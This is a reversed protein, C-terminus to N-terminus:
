SVSAGNHSPDPPGATVRTVSLADKAALFVGILVLLLAARTWVGAILLRKFFTFDEHLYVIDYFWRFVGVYVMLDVIAYLAWWVLRVNLLVFFPLIWLTYQPSHVKSFALFVALLSACAAVFPYVDDKRGRAWSMTLVLAFSVLMLATTVLNFDDASWSPWGFQWFTDFNPLRQRHFEYTAWWGPLNVLAFPLNVAAFTGLGIAVARMGSWFDRRAVRDFLLPGLFLLPYLKLAGGLGFLLAARLPSGRSWLYFGGVTAAVVLLDWNHFAYLVLAPACAWLLARKGAMRWLLSAVLLAFPALLVMSVVLYTRDDSALLGSAWMFAGTLVPYEIAGGALESDDILEGNVYPFVHADIGRVAYLPQIDNYCLRSYQRGDFGALCQAKLAGGAMLALFCLGLVVGIGPRANM